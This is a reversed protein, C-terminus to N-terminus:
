GQNMLEIQTELTDGVVLTITRNANRVSNVFDKWKDTAFMPWGGVPIIGDVNENAFEYMIDIARDISDECDKFSNPIKAFLCM